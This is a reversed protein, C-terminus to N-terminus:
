LLGIGTYKLKMRDIERRQAPTLPHHGAGSSRLLRGLSQTFHYDWDAMQDQQGSRIADLLCRIVEWREEDQISEPLDEGFLGTQSSM